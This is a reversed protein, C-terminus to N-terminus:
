VSQYASRRSRRRGVFYAILVIVVLAALACGVAIPVIDNTANKCDHITKVFNEKEASEGRFAELKLDNLILTVKSKQGALPTDQDDHCSYYNSEPVAWLKLGQAMYNATTNAEPHHPFVEEEVKVKLMIKSVYVESQNNKLITLSLSMNEDGTSSIVLMQGELGSPESIDCKSEKPDVTANISLYRTIESKTVTDNYQFALIGRFKALICSSNGNAVSYTIEPVDSPRSTPAAHDPAVTTSSPAQTTPKATTTTEPPAKTSTSSSTTTSTTEQGFVGGILLACLLAIKLTM